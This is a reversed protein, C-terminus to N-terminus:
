AAGKKQLVAGIERLFGARTTKDAREWSELLTALLRGQPDNVAPKDLGIAVRAEAVTKAEGEAIFRAAALQETSTLECLSLLAQQNREVKTGRLLKIADTDLKAIRLARDITDESLGVRAAADATFRQSIEFGCTAANIEAKFKASKRDGGRALTANRDEYAKKRAALHLARDLPNLDHRNLNEDIEAIQADFDDMDDILVHKGVELHTWGLNIMADLRHGGITLDFGEDARRVRIPQLLGKEAISAGIFASHDPNVPRLRDNRRILAVDIKTPM